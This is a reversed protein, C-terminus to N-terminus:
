PVKEQLDRLRPEAPVYRGFRLRVDRGATVEDRCSRYAQEYVACPQDSERVCQKQVDRAVENCSADYVRERKPTPGCAVGLCLWVLLASRFSTVIMRM